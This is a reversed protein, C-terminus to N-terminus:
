CLKEFVLNYNSSDITLAYLNVITTWHLAQRKNIWIHSVAGKSHKAIKRGFTTVIGDM